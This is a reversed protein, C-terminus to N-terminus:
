KVLVKRVKGNEYRVINLGKEMKNIQRGHLNYITKRTSQPMEIVNVSAEDQPKYIRFNGSAHLWNMFYLLGDYYRFRGTPISTEYFDDVFDWTMSTSCALTGTANCAVLGPSHDTNGNTENGELTYCSYYKKVGGRVNYLFGLIKSCMAEYEVGEPHFWSFDVAMNMICRWADYLFKAHDGDGQHVSGDFNAYDPMLGTTPHAFKSWMERSKAAITRLEDNHNDAWEAWLQYFAPLHYSPDTFKAATAYPVFVVQKETSDFLNTYSSHPSFSMPKNFCNEIIYNAEKSYNFIGEGDGWRNSAFMLAMIFYEEGDSAPTQGKTSGDTNCQWNFYGQKETGNGNQMYTKAWKWLRDFEEHKNLQVCIMMGYSMGESRVDNNNVDLIYAMDTGVPYYVRETDGDGYFMQQWMQEIRSNVDAETYGAEVFLNRYEGTEYAGKAPIVPDNRPVIESILDFVIKDVYTDNSGNDTELNLKLSVTTASLYLKLKVKSNQAQTGTFSFTGITQGDVYLEIKATSSNNSAGRVTVEYLGQQVPLTVTGTANDNNTYFGVGGFPQTIKGAYTGAPTLSEAEVTVTQAIMQQSAVLWCILTLLKKM